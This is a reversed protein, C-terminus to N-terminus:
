YIIRACISTNVAQDLDSHDWTKISKQKKTCKLSEETQMIAAAKKWNYM